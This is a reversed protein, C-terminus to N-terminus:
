RGVMARTATDDFIAPVSRPWWDPLRGVVSIYGGGALATADEAPLVLSEGGLLPRGTSPQNGVHRGAPGLVKVAVVRTDGSESELAPADGALARRRRELASEVERCEELADLADDVRQVHHGALNGDVIADGRAAKAANLEDVARATAAHAATQRTALADLEAFANADTPTTDTM